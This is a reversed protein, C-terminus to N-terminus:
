KDFMDSMTYFGKKGALWHAATVAGLAFGSRSKAEHRITITDVSSDYKIEHIGCVEGQRIAEIDLINENNNKGLQWQQKRTQNQLLNEALTIATGSPADAKHIHHTECISPTYQEYNNMLKALMINMQNFLYVGISFNSAWFLSQNQSECETKITEMQSYWGTTGVVVPINRKFCERINDIVTDPISFDIAVTDNKSEPIKNRQEALISDLKAWDDRSDIKCIIEDNRELAKEEIMKGMKGYGIIIIKMIREQKKLENEFAFTIIKKLM